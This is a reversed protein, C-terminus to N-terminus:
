PTRPNCIHCTAGKTNVVVAECRVCVPLLLDGRGLRWRRYTLGKREMVERHARRIEAPTLPPPIM